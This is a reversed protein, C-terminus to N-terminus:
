RRLAAEVVDASPADMEGKLTRGGRTKVRYLFIAM